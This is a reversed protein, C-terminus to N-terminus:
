RGLLHPESSGVTLHKVETSPTLIVVVNRIESNAADHTAGSRGNIVGQINRAAVVNCTLVLAALSLSAIFVIRASRSRKM